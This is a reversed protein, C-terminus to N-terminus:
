YGHYHCQYFTKWDMTHSMVCFQFRRIKMLFVLAWTKGTLVSDSDQINDLLTTGLLWCTMLHHCGLLAHPPVQVTELTLIANQSERILTTQRIRELTSRTSGLTISSSSSSNFVLECHQQAGPCSRANFIVEPFFCIQGCASLENGPPAEHRSRARYSWDERQSITSLKDASAWGPRNINICEIWVGTLAYLTSIKRIQFSNLNM